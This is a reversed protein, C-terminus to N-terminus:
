EARNYASNGSGSQPPWNRELIASVSEPSDLQGYLSHEARQLRSGCWAESIPSGSEILIGATAVRALLGLLERARFELKEPHALMSRLRKLEADLDRDNGAMRDLESLVAEVTDPKRSLVRLVDLCMVNGSGEWIANVPAERYYRAVPSENVYGNGGLCEMAEYTFGPARKCNWYKTVPTMLRRWAAEMESEEARDFARALRFALATCGEVELALDALVNRMLPQELLPRAFVQRWQCHHLAQSLTQRMMAASSVACDLRTGTAMELINRVGRGEEGILRAQAGHFEVESSANSRNGLKDKLRQIHIANHEGDPLIRPMFFCSLGRDTQALVLFADCMPASFFWKHGTLRYRHGPGRQGLPSATTTNSRVDTGGQKETMGMGITLGQKDQAPISRSDYERSLIGPLWDRLLEDQLALTPLSANTMTIPCIHGPEVQTMLYLGAQRTVNRGPVPPAGALHDWSSAHLGQTVSLRMLEHYAPHFEVEDLRHGFRDFRHLVPTHTNAQRGLDLVATRGLGKGFGTLSEDDAAAGERRVADQLGPDSRFLDYDELAPPQNFVEHTQSDTM